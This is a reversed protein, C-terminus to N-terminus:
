RDKGDTCLAYPTLMSTIPKKGFIAEGMAQGVSVAPKLDASTSLQGVYRIRPKAPAAPWVIPNALPEFIVGAQKACGTALLLAAAILGLRLNRRMRIMRFSGRCAWGLFSSATTRNRAASTRIERVVTSRLNGTEGASKSPNRSARRAAASRITSTCTAEQRP